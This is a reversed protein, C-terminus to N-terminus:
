AAHRQLTVVFMARDPHECLYDSDVLCAYACQDPQDVLCEALNPGICRTRCIQRSPLHRLQSEPSDSMSGLEMKAM